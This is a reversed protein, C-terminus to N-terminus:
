DRLGKMKRSSSTIFTTEALGSTLTLPIDKDLATDILKEKLYKGAEKSDTFILWKEDQPTSLVAKLIETSESYYVPTIYSFDFPIGYYRYNTTEPKRLSEERDDYLQAKRSFYDKQNRNNTGVIAPWGWPSVLENTYDEKYKLLERVSGYPMFCPPPLESVEDRGVFQLYPIDNVVPRLYLFLYSMTATMYIWVSEPRGERIRRMRNTCEKIKMNFSSDTLFYHAEDLVYYDAKRVRQALEDSTNAKQTGNNQSPLDLEVFQQYSCISFSAQYDKINGANKVQETLAVRNTFYVMSKGQQHVFPLLVNLAFYTKGSGMPTEILIAKRSDWQKYDEGIVDTIHKM